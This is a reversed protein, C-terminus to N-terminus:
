ADEGFDDSRDPNIEVRYVSLSAGPGARLYVNAITGPKPYLTTLRNRIRRRAERQAEVPVGHGNQRWLALHQDGAPESPIKRQEPPEDIEIRCVEWLCCEAKSQLRSM